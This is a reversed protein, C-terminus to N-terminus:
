CLSGLPDPLSRSLRHASPKRKQNREFSLRTSVDCCLSCPCLFDLILPCLCQSFGLCLSLRDALPSDALTFLHLSRVYLNFFVQLTDIRQLTDHHRKQRESMDKSLGTLIGIPVNPARTHGVMTYFIEGPSQAESAGDATLPPASTPPATNTESASASVTSPEEIQATETAIQHSLKQKKRKQRISIVLGMVRLVQLDWPDSLVFPLSPFQCGLYRSNARSPYRHLLEPPRWHLNSRRDDLSNLDKTHCGTVRRWSKSKFAPASGAAPSSRASISFRFCTLSPVPSLSSFVKIGAPYHLVVEQDRPLLLPQHPRPTPIQFPIQIM